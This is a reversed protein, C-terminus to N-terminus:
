KPVVRLNNKCEFDLIYILTDKNLGLDFLNNKKSGFKATLAFYLIQVGLAM